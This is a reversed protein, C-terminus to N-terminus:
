EHLPLFDDVIKQVKDASLHDVCIATARNRFFGVRYVGARYEKCTHRLHNRLEHRQSLTLRRAITYRHKPVNARAELQDYTEVLRGYDPM